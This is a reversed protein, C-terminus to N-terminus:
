TLALDQSLLCNCGSGCVEAGVGTMPPNSPQREKENKDGEKVKTVKNVL